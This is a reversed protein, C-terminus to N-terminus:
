EKKFLCEITMRYIRVLVLVFCKANNRQEIKIIKKM